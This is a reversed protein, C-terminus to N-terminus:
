RLVNPAAACDDDIQASIIVGRLSDAVYHSLREIAGPELSAPYFARLLPCLVWGHKREGRRIAHRVAIFRESHEMGFLLWMAPM